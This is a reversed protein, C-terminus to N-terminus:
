NQVTNNTNNYYFSTINKKKHHVLGLDTYTISVSINYSRKALFIDRMTLIVFYQGIIEKNVDKDGTELDEVTLNSFILSRSV